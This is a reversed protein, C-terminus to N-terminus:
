GVGARIRTADRFVICIIFRGSAPHRRIRDGIRLLAAGSDRDRFRYTRHLRHHLYRPAAFAEHITELKSNGFDRKRLHHVVKFNEAGGRREGRRQPSNKASGM